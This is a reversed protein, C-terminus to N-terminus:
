QRRFPSFAPLDIMADLTSLTFTLGKTVRLIPALVDNIRFFGKGDVVAVLVVGQRDTIRSLREIRSAKDRATGGDEALKAEIVISPAERNPILFDPAQEFGAIRDIARSRYFPVGHKTLLNQVPVEILDAKMGSLADVVYAFPRGLYREYLVTAYPVGAQAARAADSWGHKTDFKDHRDIFGDTGSARPLLTGEVASFLAQAIFPSQERQRPTPSRRASEIGKIAAETVRNKLKYELVYALEQVRYGAITRFVTLTPPCEIMAQILSDVSVSTFAATHQAALEYAKRFEDEPMIVRSDWPILHFMPSLYNAYARALQVLKAGDGAQAAIAAEARIAAADL